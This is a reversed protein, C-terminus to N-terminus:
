FFLEDVNISNDISKDNDDESEEDSYESKKTGDGVLITIDANKPVKGSPYISKGNYLIDIVVNEFEYPEKRMEINSFKLSKLTAEASRSSANILEPIAVIEPEFSQMKLYLVRNKKVKSNEEPIVEVISGPKAGEVYVSDILEYGLESNKILRTALKMDMGKIAPVNVYEGHHTYVKLFILGLVIMLIIAIAFSIFTYLARKFFFKKVSESQKKSM